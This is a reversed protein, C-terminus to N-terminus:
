KVEDFHEIEICKALYGIKCFTTNQDKSVNLFNSNLVTHSIEFLLRLTEGSIKYYKDRHYVKM